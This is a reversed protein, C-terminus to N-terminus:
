RKKRKTKARRKANARAGRRSHVKDKKKRTKTRMKSEATPVSAAANLQMLLKEREAKAGELESLMNKEESDAMAFYKRRIRLYIETLILTPIVVCILFGPITSLFYIIYGLIPISLSQKGIIENVPLKYTKKDKLSLLTATGGESSVFSGIYMTNNSKSEVHAVLDGEKILSTDGNDIKSCIVLDGSGIGPSSDDTLSILPFFGCIDPVDVRVVYIKVILILNIIIVPIMLLMAAACCLTKM